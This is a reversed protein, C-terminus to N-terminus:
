RVEGTQGMAEAKLLQRYYFSDRKLAEHTGAAIMRQEDLLLILDCNRALHPHHTIMFMTKREMSEPLVRLLSEEAIGDLASSPEDLLLIDPDKMLARAIALRQKQGESLNGGQEDVKGRYGERIGSIFDHIGAIKAARIADAESADPNGYILNELFTGSLLLESQSVYGIRRRISGTELESLPRGDFYIEGKQPKYFRLLLSLLTTKGIGSPGMLAVRQGPRIHFSIDDLVPDSGNYSFCVNRFEIDGALRDVRKGTGSNDEPLIDFLASVRELSARASQLELNASALSQAPGFVYGLYAQFAILAGLSWEGSIIWIAGVALAVARAAGPISRIAFQAIAGVLTQEIQIDQVSKVESSLKRITRDESNFAKILSISSVAEQFRSLVNAQREMGDHSLVYTVVSFWRMLFAIAPIIILAILALRWELYFLLILGGALRLVDELLNPVSASFFWSLGHVDASLRSVIYGTETRDFFSKPFRLARELLSNQIDLIVAQEFRTFYLQRFFDTLAAAGSVAILLVVPLLLLGPKGALIVDDILYKTILPQPFSLASAAAILVVGLLGKRRHKLAFPYLNGLKKRFDRGEGHPIAPAIPDRPSRRSFAHKLYQLWNDM